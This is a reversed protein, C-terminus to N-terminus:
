STADFYSSRRVVVVAARAGPTSGPASTLGGM